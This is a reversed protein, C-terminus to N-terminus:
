LNVRMGKSNAYDEFVGNLYTRETDSIVSKLGTGHYPQVLVPFVNYESPLEGIEDTIDGYTEGDFGLLINGHYAMDFEHLLNLTRVTDAVSLKKNMMDLRNQRFSEVGVVFYICGSDKAARVMQRDFNDARIAASWQIKLGKMMSCTQMFRNRTINITNDNFVILDIRYKNKYYEIEEKVKLLNRERYTCVQTCFICSNPCGRSALIGMYRRDHRRHYEEIGFGEYDPWPIGDIHMCREIEGKFVVDAYSSILEPNFTALAGGVVTKVGLERAILCAQKNFELFERAGTLFVADCDKIESRLDYDWLNYNLIKVTNGHLKLFSSVYCIGLNICCPDSISISYKPQIITIKM